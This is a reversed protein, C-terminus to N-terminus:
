LECERVGIRQAVLSLLSRGLSGPAGLAPTALVGKVPQYASTSAFSALTLPKVVSQSLSHRPKDAFGPGESLRQFLVNTGKPREDM